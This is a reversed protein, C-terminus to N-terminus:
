LREKRKGRQEGEVRQKGEVLRRRVVVEVADQVLAYPAPSREATAPTGADKTM